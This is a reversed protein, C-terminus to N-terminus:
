KGTCAPDPHCDSTYTSAPEQAMDRGGSGSGFAITVILLFMPESSRLEEESYFFTLSSMQRCFCDALCISARLPPGQEAQRKVKPLIAKELHAKSFCYYAM